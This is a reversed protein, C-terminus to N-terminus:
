HTRTNLQRLYRSLMIWTVVSEGSQPVAPHSGLKIGIGFRPYHKAFYVETPRQILVRTCLETKPFLTTNMSQEIM